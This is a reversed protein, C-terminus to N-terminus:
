ASQSTQSQGPTQPIFQQGGGFVSPSNASAIVYFSNILREYDEQKFGVVIEKTPRYLLVPYQEQGTVKKVGEHTIPDDNAVVINFSMGRTKLFNEAQSCSPCGMLGYLTFPPVNMNENERKREFNFFV